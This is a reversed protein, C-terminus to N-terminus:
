LESFQSSRFLSCPLASQLHDEAIVSVLTYKNRHVLRRLTYTLTYEILARAKRYLIADKDSLQRPLFRRIMQLWLLM